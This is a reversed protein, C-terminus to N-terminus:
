GLAMLMFGLQSMVIAALLRKIDSQALAILAGIAL